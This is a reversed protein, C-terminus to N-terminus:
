ISYKVLLILVKKFLSSGSKQKRSHINQINNYVNGIVTVNIHKQKYSDKPSPLENPSKKSEDSLDSDPSNGNEAM